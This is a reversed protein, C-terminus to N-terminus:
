RVFRLFTDVSTDSITMKSRFEESSARLKKSFVPSRAILILRHARLEVKKPGVIFSVDCGIQNTLMYQMCEVLSMDGQWDQNISQRSNMESHAEVIKTDEKEPTTPVENNNSNMSPFFHM